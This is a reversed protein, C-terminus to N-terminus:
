RAKLTASSWRQSVPTSWVSSLRLSQAKSHSRTSLFTKITYTSQFNVLKLVKSLRSKNLGNRSCMEYRLRWRVLLAYSNDNTIKVLFHDKKLNLNEWYMYYIKWKKQTPLWSTSRMSCSSRLISIMHSIGRGQRRLLPCQILHGLWSMRYHGRLTILYM